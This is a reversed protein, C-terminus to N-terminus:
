VLWSSLPEESFAAKIVFRVTIHSAESTLTQWHVGQQGSKEGCYVRAVDWVLVTQEHRCSKARFGEVQAVRSALARGVGEPLESLYSSTGWTKARIHLFHYALTVGHARLVGVSPGQDKPASSAQRVRLQRFLSLLWPARPAVDAIRGLKPQTARVTQGAGPRPTQGSTGGLPRDKLREGSTVGCGRLM